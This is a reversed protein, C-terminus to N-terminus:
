IRLAADNRMKSISRFFNQIRLLNRILVFTLVRKQREDDKVQWFHKIVNEHNLTKLINGETTYSFNNINPGLKYIKMVASGGDVKSTIM